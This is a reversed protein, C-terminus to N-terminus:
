LVRSGTVRKGKQVRGKYRTLVWAQPGDETWRLSSVPLAVEWSRKKPKRLGTIM